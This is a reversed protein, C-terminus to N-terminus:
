SGMSLKWIPFQGARVGGSFYVSELFRHDGMGIERMAIEAFVAVDMWTPGDIADSLEVQGNGDSLSLVVKGKVAQEDLNDIPAMSGDKEYTGASYYVNLEDGNVPEEIALAVAQAIRANIADTADAYKKKRAEAEEETPVLREQQETFEIEWLMDFEGTLKQAYFNIDMAILHDILELAEDDTVRKQVDVAFMKRVPM